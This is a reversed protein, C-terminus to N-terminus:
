FHRNLQMMANTQMMVNMPLIIALMMVNMQLILPLLPPPVVVVV